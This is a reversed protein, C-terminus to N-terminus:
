SSKEKKAINERGTKSGREPSLHPNNESPLEEHQLVEYSLYSPAFM